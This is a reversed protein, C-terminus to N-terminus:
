EPSFDITIGTDEKIIEECQQEIFNDKGLWKQSFYGVVCATIVTGAIILTAAENLKKM